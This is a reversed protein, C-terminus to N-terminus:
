HCGCGQGCGGESEPQDQRIVRRIGDKSEIVLEDCEHLFLGHDVVGPMADLVAALEEPDYDGMTVDIVLNGNDNLFMQGDLGRRFVGNLGAERLHRRISSLGFSQVAVPLTARTGLRDVLKVDTIMYIRRDAASAVIRERVFAGGAGKVMRLAPDVEDAGDFLLDIREVMTFDIVNLRHARALTETAHSTPVCRVDLKEERVRDALALVGRSATRGTGLGVIMGSQVEAVVAEALADATNPERNM